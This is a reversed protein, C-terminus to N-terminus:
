QIRHLSVVFSLLHNISIPYKYIHNIDSKGARDTVTSNELEAPFDPISRVPTAEEPTDFHGESDSSRYGSLSLTHLIRFVNLVNFLLLFFLDKCSQFTEGPVTCKIFLFIHANSPFCLQVWISFDVKSRDGDPSSLHRSCCLVVPSGSGAM